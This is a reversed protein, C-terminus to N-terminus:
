RFRSGVGKDKEEPEKETGQRTGEQVRTQNPRTSLVKQWVMVDHGSTSNFFCCAPIYGSKRFVHASAQNGVRITCQVVRAGGLEAKEEASRILRKGIGKGERTPDVSLHRIEWQYWQVRKVEICGVIVEDETEFLYNKARRSVTEATYTQTLQNRANILQAIQAAQQPTM